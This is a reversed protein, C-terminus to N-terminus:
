RAISKLHGVRLRRTHPARGEALVAGLVQQPQVPVLALKWDDEGEVEHNTAICEVEVNHWKHSQAEM